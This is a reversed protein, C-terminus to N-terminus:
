YRIDTIACRDGTLAVYVDFVGDPVTTVNKISIGMNETFLTIVNRRRRFSVECDFGKKNYKKWADWGKFDEHRDVTIENKGIGDITADEGDIRICALERYGPDSVQGGDSTYLLVYASNWVLNASPLSMTHFFLKLGDSLKIGSTFDSRNQDVQINKIENELRNTYKIKDAIRTIYDQSIAEPSVEISIDSITCNEGAIAIYASNSRESLAVTTDYAIGKRIITIRVHDEYRVAELCYDTKTERADHLINTKMNRTTSCVTHGDFWIEGCEIYNLSKISREDRHVCGDLSDFLIVTPISIRKDSEENSKCNFSLKTIHSSLEIGDSIIDRYGEFRLKNIKSLDTEDSKEEKVKERLQYETDADIISVMIRSYEPDLQTGSSKVIEERVTKQPLANRYSRNSTMSDYTDAVAVIRAYDPIREGELGDPYGRGDYREHHYKAGVSLFPYETINSLIQGGITPHSKIIEYQEDTLGTDKNIIAEDIGIKGVDHLLATYYVETVEKETKGSQEAIRKSYEAVRLSHGQTYEDKADIATALSTITQKFMKQMTKQENKLHEIELKNAHEVTRNMDILAFIHLVVAMGVISINTLSVGYFFVQLISAVLPVTTFLIMVVWVTPKLKKRHQAIISLHIMLIVVPIIYCAYFGSGRQYHNTEDFTYYMGNFQSIVILVWGLTVLIEVLVLRKPPKEFGMENKCLDIMYLNFAQLVALTVFYVMFNSIRVMWFGIDETNGRYIYALRDFVMLVAATIELYVLIYKRRTRMTRMIMTFFATIFCITSIVLMMNLQNAQLFEIM